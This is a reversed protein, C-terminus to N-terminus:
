ASPFVWIRELRESAEGVDGEPVTNVQLRNVSQLVWCIKASSFAWIRELGGRPPKGLTAKLRLVSSSDPEISQLM